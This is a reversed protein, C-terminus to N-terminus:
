GWFALAVCGGAVAGMTLQGEAGINWVNARFGVALGVGILILPAGKVFLESWGYFSTLPAIFFYYLARLPDYGMALFIVFGALVTLAVALLPTSYLLGRAIERRPEIKIFPAKPSM